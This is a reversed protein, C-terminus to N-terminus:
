KVSRKSNKKSVTAWYCVTIVSVITTLLAVGGIIKQSSSIASSGPPM